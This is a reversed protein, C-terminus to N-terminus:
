TVSVTAGPGGVGGLIESELAVDIDVAPVDVLMNARSAALWLMEAIGSEEFFTVRRPQVFFHGPEVRMRTIPKSSQFGTLAFAGSQPSLVRTRVLAAQRGNLVYAAPAGGLGRTFTLVGQSGTLRYGGARSDLEAKWTLTATQASVGFTGAAANLPRSVQLTASKGAFAYSGPGAVLAQLLLVRYSGPAAQLVSKKLLAATKTSIAFTGVQTRLPQHPSLVSGGTLAYAGAAAVLLHDVVLGAAFPNLAYAAPAANLKLTRRLTAGQGALAFAGTGARLIRSAQLGAGVSSVTYLGLFGDISKTAFVGDTTFASSHGFMQYHGASTSLTRLPTRIPFMDAQGTIVYQPVARAQPAQLVHNWLLTAPKGALAFSAGQALLKRTFTLTPPNGTLVFSGPAASAKHNWLLTANKGSEAFAAAATFLKSFRLLTAASALLTYAGPQAGLQQTLGAPRGALAYAGPAAVLLHHIGGTIQKPSLTFAGAGALLKLNRVYTLNIAVGALAYSGAATNLPYRHVLTANNGTLVFALGGVASTTTAGSPQGLALDGIADQGLV